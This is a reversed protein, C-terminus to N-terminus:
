NTSSSVQLVRQMVPEPRLQRMCKHQELECTKLACWAPAQGVRIARCPLNDLFFYSHQDKAYPHWEFPHEPGFLSVTPIGLAVALHKPGSDNGLFIQARSVCAAVFRLDDHPLRLSGAVATEGAGAVTIVSGGTKQRWMQAATAFYEMPWQKTPRSAGCGLALVPGRVNQQTLFEQARCTEESRLHIQTAPRQPNLGLARLVDLDREIIPKVEGKGPIEVTSYKNPKLLHHFHIARVPARSFRALNIATGGAHFAMVWDFKEARIRSIWRWSSFLQDKRFRWLRHIAPHNELLPAWLDPVLATIEAEPLEEHLAQAPATTLITDGMARLKIILVKRPSKM